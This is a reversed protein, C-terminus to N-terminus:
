KLMGGGIEDREQESLVAGTVVNTELGYGEDVGKARLHVIRGEVYVQFGLGGDHEVRLHEGAKLSLKM